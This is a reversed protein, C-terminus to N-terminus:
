LKIKRVRQFSFGKTIPRFKFGTSIGEKKKGKIKFFLAKFSPTYDSPSKKPKVNGLRLLGDGGAFLPMIFPPPTGGGTQIYPRSVPRTDSYSFSSLGPLNLSKTISVQKVRVKTIQVPRQKQKTQTTTDVIPTTIQIQRSRSSSASRTKTIPKFIPVQITPSEQIVKVEPKVTTAQQSYSYKQQSQPTQTKTSVFPVVSKFSTFSPKPINAPLVVGSFGGATAQKLGTIANSSGGVNFTSGASGGSGGIVNLDIETGQINPTFRFRSSPRYLTDGGGLNEFEYVPKGSGSKFRTVGPKIKNTASGGTYKYASNLNTNFTTGQTSTYATVGRSAYVNTTGGLFNPTNINTIFQNGTAGYASGSGGSTFSYPTMTSRVGTDVYAGGGSIRMFPTETSSFGGGITQGKIFASKELGYIKINGSSGSYVRTTIGKPNTYKVSNINTFKTNAGIGQAYTATKIRVPSAGAVSEVIGREWGLSKINASVGAVGGYVLPTVIMASGLFEPTTVKEKLYQGPNGMFTTTTPTTPYHGIKGIDGRFTFKDDKFQATDGFKANKKIRTGDPNYYAQGGYGATTYTFEQIGIAFSGISQGVSAFKLRQQTGYSLNSFDKKAGTVANYRISSANINDTFFDNTLGYTTGDKEQTTTVGKLGEYSSPNAKFDKVLKNYQNYTDQGERINAQNSVYLGRTAVNRYVQPTNAVFSAEGIAETPSQSQQTWYAVGRNNEFKGAENASLTLAGYSRAGPDGAVDPNQGPQITQGLQGSSSSPKPIGINESPTSYRNSSSPPRSPNPTGINESPTRPSDAPRDNSSGGSSSPPSPSKYFSPPSPAIYYHGSPDQLIVM